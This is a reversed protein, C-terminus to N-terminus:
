RLSLIFVNKRRSVHSFLLAILSGSPKACFKKFSIKTITSLLGITLFVAFVSRPVPYVHFITSAVLFTPKTPINTWHEMLSSMLNMIQIM